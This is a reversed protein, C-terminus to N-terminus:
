WQQCWFHISLCDNGRKGSGEKRKEERSRKKKKEVGLEATGSGGGRLKCLNIDLDPLKNVTKERARITSGTKM